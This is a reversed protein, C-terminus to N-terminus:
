VVKLQRRPRLLHKVYVARAAGSDNRKVEIQSVYGNPSLQQNEPGTLLSAACLVGNICFCLHVVALQVWEM